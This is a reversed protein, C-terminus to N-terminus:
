PKSRSRGSATSCGTDVSHVLQGPDLVAVRGRRRRDRAFPEGAPRGCRDGRGGARRPSRPRVGRRAATRRRRLHRAGVPRAPRRPVVPRLEVRHDVQTVPPTGTQPQDPREPRPVPRRPAPHDRRRVADQNAGRRARDGAASRRSLPVPRAREDGAASSPHSLRQATARRTFLEVADSLALPALEFVVEGDIDLPVQSTCLIRLGPAADLLRVALAAAADIVHECNDLIVVRPPARSGSSCRRRAAPGDVAGVLVDVVDDATTARRSGPWGSAAPEGDATSSALRRGVAIAVATKGVGGPGVIEVLRESALLDSVAAVETERGVLEATM